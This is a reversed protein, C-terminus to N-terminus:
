QDYEPQSKIIEFIEETEKVARDKERGSKILVGCISQCIRRSKQYNERFGEEKSELVAEDIKLTLKEDRNLYDFIARRASSGRISEPYIMNEEPHLVKRALNIIETLYEAYNIPM